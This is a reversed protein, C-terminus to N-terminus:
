KNNLSRRRLSHARSAKHQLALWHFGLELHEEVEHAARAGGGPAGSRRTEAGKNTEPGFKVKNASTSSASGPGGTAAEWRPEGRLVDDGGLSVGRKWHAGPDRVSGLQREGNVRQPSSAAASGSPGRSGLRLVFPGPGRGGNAVGM